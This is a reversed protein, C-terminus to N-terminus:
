RCPLRRISASISFLIRCVEHFAFQVKAPLTLAFFAPTQLRLARASSVPQAEM